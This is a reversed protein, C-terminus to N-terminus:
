QQESSMRYCEKKHYGYIDNVISSKEEGDKGGVVSEIIARRSEKNSYNKDGEVLSMIGQLHGFGCVVVMKKGQLNLIEIAQHIKGLMYRDREYIIVEAVTPFHRGLDNISETLFDSEKMVREMFKEIEEKSPTHVCEYLMYCVLKCKKLFTLSTWTRLLTLKVPRDGLITLCSSPAAEYAGRFEGGLTVNMVSSYQDQVKELMVAGVAAGRSMNENKMLFQVKKSTSGRKYEASNKRASLKEEDMRELVNCRGPCLELFLCSPSILGMLSIADSTSEESIHSSGLFTVECGSIM